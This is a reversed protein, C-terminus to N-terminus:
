EQLLRNLSKVILLEDVYGGVPNIGLIHILIGPSTTLVM